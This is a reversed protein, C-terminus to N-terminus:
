GPLPIQAGVLPSGPRLTPLASEASRGAQEAQRAYYLLEPLMEGARQWAAVASPEDGALLQLHGLARWAAPNDPQRLTASQLAAIGRARWVATQEADSSHAARVRNLAVYGANHELAARWPNLGLGLIAVLLGIM